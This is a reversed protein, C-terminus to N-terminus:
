PKKKKLYIRYYGLLNSLLFCSEMLIAMPSNIVILTIIWISTALLLLQRLLKDQKCFAAVTAITTASLAVIDIFHSYTFFTLIFSLSVFILVMLKSTTFIGVFYRVASIGILGMSTFEKLFYFHASIFICSITLFLLVKERKKFQFSIVDITMAIGILIQSLIFDSLVFNEFM